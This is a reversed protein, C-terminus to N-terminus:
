LWGKPEQEARIEEEMPDFAGIDFIERLATNEVTGTDGATEVVEDDDDEFSVDKQTVDNFTANGWEFNMAHRASKIPQSASYGFVSRKTVKKYEVAFIYEGPAKAKKMGKEVNSMSASAGANLNFPLGFAAALPLSFDAGVENKKGTTISLDGDQCTKIGVILYLRGNNRAFLGKPGTLADYVRPTEILKDFADFQDQLRYTKIIASDVTCKDDNGVGINFTFLGELFTKVKNNTISSLVVKAESEVTKVLTAGLISAPDKPQSNAIPNNIDTVFRGIMDPLDVAPLRSPLILFTPKANIGSM